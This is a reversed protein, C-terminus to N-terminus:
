GKPILQGNNVLPSQTDFRVIKGPEKVSFNYFVNNGSVQADSGSVLRVSSTQPNFVGQNIWDKGLIYQSSAANLTVNKGINLSGVTNITSNPWQNFIAPAGAQRLIFDGASNINAITSLGSAQIIIDGFGLTSITTGQAQRFAGQGDFDNDALLELNGNATTVDANVIIDDDARLRTEGQTFLPLNIVISASTWIDILPGTGAPPSLDAPPL